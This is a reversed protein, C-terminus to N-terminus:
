KKESTKKLDGASIISLRKPNLHKRITDSVQQPTLANVKKELDTYYAMTRGIFLGNNLTLALQGDSARQVKFQELYAKKAEDLEKADVGDKLLKDIEELIVKDVKELNVPNCIAYIIFPTSKDIPSASLQSRVGYSLGEKQRVRNGLRSSLTGGGFLFNGVELAPYDPDSDTLGLTLGALFFANAKDPTNIVQREGVVDTKGPRAIRRYPVNAKWGDVLSGASKTIVAPDFDGVVVLEGNQGGVQEAYLKRVQEVTLVDLKQLAEELTPIYRVDDAPYPNLKRQLARSALATPETLGKEYGDREERKLIDFEEAPFSPEHLIENLLTLVAPLNARKCQVTFTLLGPGSTASVRAKLKDMEDELQQRSHKKTGRVMLPGLFEAATAQGKLSEENGFRLTLRATVDEGRTKKPLLAVKLGSPLESRQVRKEINEPSPDFAEGTAVEAGGKYDKVLNEVSPTAPVEAREPKESPIYMGVTRNSRTLYKKAVKTVDAPTVKALRDRHLFFLRWDGKAGWDSLSIGIRNSDAMLRERDKQLRRVAREVEEATIPETTLKELVDVVADRVGELSNQRDVEVAIELVGPDHWGYAAGSVSTAKKTPVLAKYVRGAPESVLIQNLVEVAAFDDHAAAPVHYLIGLVGVKGVRRLVVNREGDQAPEETYTTSLKRDPRKLAGFYKTIYQLAKAEDFKGAVVLMANDPQYFKRYFAQLNEIPVREIDSRNGITSKGYNHWEYAAAMMRQSLVSQPNNEGMEFENRVVTMESALDERKIFSNVMRDAELRIAFELNEDSAPLTEFYNTRDVWTTGNFQAGRDKLAKPVDPHQPTGKFVMHELLHAMGTEGYGEHRSGVLVTLNVVVRPTSQDPLLLVRLGNDLQYETIGEITVIKKPAAPTDAFLPSPVLQFLSGVALMSLFIRLTARNM